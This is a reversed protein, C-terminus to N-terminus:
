KVMRKYEKLKELFAKASGAGVLQRGIQKANKDLFYFTPTGFAKFGYKKADKIDIKVPIYFNEIFEILKEDEFTVEDMYECAECGKQSVMVMILKNEKKALKKAKDLSDVWDFDAGFIFLPLLLLIFFRM